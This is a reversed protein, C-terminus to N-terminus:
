QQAAESAVVLDITRSIAPYGSNLGFALRDIAGHATFGLRTKGGGPDRKVEVEVQLPKTVGLLTLDGVVAVHTEDIKEVSTSAFAITPFRPADLFAATKLYDNFGSSGVDISQAAVSFRVRSNGPHDFDVSIDGKFDRFEGKTRPYGVADILFTIQTRAPNIAWVANALGRKAPALAAFALGALGVAAWKRRRM